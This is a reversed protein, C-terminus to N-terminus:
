ERKKQEDQKQQQVAKKMLDVVRGKAALYDQGVYKDASSPKELEKILPKWIRTPIGTCLGTDTIELMLHGCENRTVEFLPEIRMGPIITM